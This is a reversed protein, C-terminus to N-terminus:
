AFRYELFKTIGMVFFACILIVLARLVYFEGFLIKEQLLNLLVALIPWWLLGFKEKTQWLYEKPFKESVKLTLIDKVRPFLRPVRAAYEEYERGFTENLYKEEKAGQRIFRLHFGVAFIPLVWFPWVMVIFGSGLLFSGFYMPNRMLSYPGGVVLGHGSPSHSKKYGRAAMRIFVGKLILIIGLFDLISEGRQDALYLKPYYLLIVSLFVFVVLLNVDTRVRAKM